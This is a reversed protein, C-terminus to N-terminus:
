LLKFFREWRVRRPSNRKGDPSGDGSQDESDYIFLPKGIIDGSGVFGWYRSDLSNDRNDGLVFYRKDPVIVEGNVVNKKLMELATNAFPSNAESPFNDRYSDPYRSKHLVYPEKLVGGNRYVVQEAIRIHDGPLGIIRKVLTQSRDVPYSFVIIDGFAPSPRPIRRVFIRDGVLITNEMSGNPIVFPQVFLLAVPFLASLVIWPLPRGRDSGAKALSRGALFFLPILVLSFVVAPITGPVASVGPSRSIALPILLLQACLYLALGYASWVRQRVIGIGAILLILAFPLVIIQQTLASVISLGAMVFAVISAIRPIKSPISM